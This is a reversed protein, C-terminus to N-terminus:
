QGQRTILMEVVAMRHDSASSDMVIAGLALMSRIWVYDLRVRPLGTRWLTATLESPLGAFPDSFGAARM